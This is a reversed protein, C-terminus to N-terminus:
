SIRDWGSFDWGSLMLRLINRDPVDFKDLVHEAHTKVTEPSIHLKAAIQRTTYNLCVLATVEQERPTLNHWRQWNEEQALRDRMADVLIRDAVEEATLREREAIFQLSRITEVNLTFNAPQKRQFWRRIARLMRQFLFM